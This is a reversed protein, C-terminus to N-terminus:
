TSQGKDYCQIMMIPIHQITAGIIESTCMHVFVASFLVFFDLIVVIVTCTYTATSVFPEPFLSNM